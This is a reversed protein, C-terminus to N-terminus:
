PEDDIRGAANRLASAHIAQRRREDEVLDRVSAYEPEPVLVYAVNTRPDVFRLDAGERDDLLEQQEPTLLVNM